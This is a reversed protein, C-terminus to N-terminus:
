QAIRVEITAQCAGVIQVSSIDAGVDEAWPVERDVVQTDGVPPEDAQLTLLLHGPTPNIGQDGMVLEPHMSSSPCAVIGVVHLKTDDAGPMKNYWADWDRCEVM